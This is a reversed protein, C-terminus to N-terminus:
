DHSGFLDGPITLHGSPLFQGLSTTKKRDVGMEETKVLFNLSIVVVLM